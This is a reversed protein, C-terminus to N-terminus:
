SAFYPAIVTSSTLDGSMVTRADLVLVPCTEAAVGHSTRSVELSLLVEAFRQGSTNM